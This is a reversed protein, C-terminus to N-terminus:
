VSNRLGASAGERVAQSKVDAMTHGSGRFAQYVVRIVYVSLLVEVLFLIFGVVYIGGLAAGNSGEEFAASMSMIGALSFTATGFLGAPAIAAYINFLIHATYILFFWAFMLASDNKCANYLRRFWLYYAGPIGTLMYIGAMLWASFKARVFFM